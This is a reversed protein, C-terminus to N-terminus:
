SKQIFYHAKITRHDGYLKLGLVQAKHAPHIDKNEKDRAIMDINGHGTNPYRKVDKWCTQFPGGFFPDDTRTIMNTDASVLVAYGAKRMGAAVDTVANALKINAKRHDIPCNPKDRQSEGFARGKTLYHTVILGIKKGNKHTFRVSVPGKNGYPHPDRIEHANPLVKVFSGRPKKPSITKSVAIWCDAARPKFLWYNYKAAAARLGQPYAETGLIVHSRQAFAKMIDSTQKEATNFVDLSTHQVSLNFSNKPRVPPKPTPKLFVNVNVRSEDLSRGHSRDTWQTMDAVPYGCGAPGCIHAKGSYHASWIYYQARGIGNKRMTRILADVNSASTYLIPKETSTKGKRARFWGVADANTADGPEVDLVDGNHYYGRVDIKLIHAKPFRKQIASLNEYRGDAYAAIYQADKPILDVNVDDYMIVTAM